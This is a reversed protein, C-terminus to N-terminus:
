GRRANPRWAPHSRKLPGLLPNAKVRKVTFL